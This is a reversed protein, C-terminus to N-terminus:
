SLRPQGALIYSALHTLSPFVADAQSLQAAALTTTLGYCVLGASRASRIGAPANEVARAAQAPLDLLSLATLYPEPDPKGRLVDDGSVVVEFRELLDPPVSRSVTPGSSSTVLALRLGAKTLRELVSYAGAYLSVHASYKQNFIEAQRAFLRDMLDTALPLGQAALIELLGSREIAGEHLYVFEEEVRVGWEAFTKQWALVHWPMSDLLVGDLDFLVAQTM